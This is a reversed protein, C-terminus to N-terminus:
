HVHIASVSCTLTALLLQFVTFFAILFSERLSLDPFPMTGHGAGHAPYLPRLGILSSVAVGKVMVGGNWWNVPPPFGM